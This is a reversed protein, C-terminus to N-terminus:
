EVSAAAALAFISGTFFPVRRGLGSLGPVDYCLWLSTSHCTLREGESRHQARMALDMSM